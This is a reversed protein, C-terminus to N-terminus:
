DEEVEQMRIERVFRVVDGARLQRCIASLVRQQRGTIARMLAKVMKSHRPLVEGIFRKGPKTLGVVAIKRGKRQKGREAVPLRSESIEAPPLNVIMRGVWRRAQLRAVVLHVNQISCGRRRAVEAIPLAGERYLITLLRFGEMTLDFSELPARMQAKFWEATDLLDLYAQFARQTKEKQTPRHSM